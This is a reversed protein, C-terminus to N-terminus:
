RSRWDIDQVEIRDKFGLMCFGERAQGIGAQGGGEQEMNGLRQAM